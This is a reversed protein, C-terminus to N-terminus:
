YVGLIGVASMIIVLETALQEGRHTGATQLSIRSALELERETQWCMPCVLACHDPNACRIRRLRRNDFAPEGLPPEPCDGDDFGIVGFLHNESTTCSVQDYLTDLYEISFAHTRVTRTEIPAPVILVVEM